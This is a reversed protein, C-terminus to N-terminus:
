HLMEASVLCTTQYILMNFHHVLNMQMQVQLMPQFIIHPIYHLLVMSPIQHLNPKGQQGKGKKKQKALKLAEIDRLVEADRKKEELKRRCSRKHSAFGRTDWLLGCIPCEAM